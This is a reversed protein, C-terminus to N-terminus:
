PSVIDSSERLTFALEFRLNPSANKDTLEWRTPHMKFRPNYEVSDADLVTETTGPVLARTRPSMEVIPDRLYDVTFTLADTGGPLTGKARIHAARSEQLQRAVRFEDPTLLCEGQIEYRTQHFPGFVIDTGDSNLSVESYHHKAMTRYTGEVFESLKLEYTLSGSPSEISIGIYQTPNSKM